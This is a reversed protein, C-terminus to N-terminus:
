NWGSSQTKAGNGTGKNWGSGQSNWGSSQNTTGSSGANVAQDGNGANDSGTGKNWGSGQSNWGGSQNSTGSSGANWSHSKNKDGSGSNWTGAGDKNKWGEGANVAQDGSGANDSGTGKNWGSGQSNWGGSQNSTGSSGANWGHSKNKDGSGSNWTGAGDKNKWGEGAGKNWDTPRDESSDNKSNWTGAGDNRSSWTGAGDNRSSWTGADDNSNNWGGSQDRRGRGRGGFGGRDSRGRGGFGGGDGSRGGFGGGEGGRGGYGGRDGGRGGFGGRGRFGGRDSRGRGRGGFGGRSGFTETQDESADGSGSNWNSKGWNSSQNGGGSWDSKKGWSSHQNRNADSSGANWSSKGGDQNEGVNPGSKWCASQGWGTASGQDSTKGSNWGRGQNQHEGGEKNETTKKNWDSSRDGSARNTDLTGWGSSQNGDMDNEGPGKRKNWGGGNDGASGAGENASSKINWGSSKDDNSAKPASWDGRSPKSNNWQDGSEGIEKGAGWRKNWGSGNDDPANAKQCGDDKKGWDSAKSKAWGGTQDNNWGSPNGTSMGDGTWSNGHGSNGGLEGQSLSRGRGFQDGRGQSGRGRGRGGFGRGEGFPKPRAWSDQQETDEKNEVWGKREVNTDAQKGWSSGGASKNWSSGENKNWSKGNDGVADESANKVNGWNVNQSGGAIKAKNWGAEDFKEADDAKGWASGEGVVVDKGKDWSKQQNWGDGGVGSSKSKEWSGAEVTDKGKGWSDPQNKGGTPSASVSKGKNWPEESTKWSDQDDSVTNKKWTAAADNSSDTPTGVKLNGKGWNDGSVKSSSGLDGDPTSKGWSSKENGAAAGWSSKENATGAGWSSKETAAAAGWSSKENAAAAGWSSKENAAAAGSSSKENSTGTGWSSKENSTGAGWSSKGNAAAAGWSSSQNPAAKTEWAANEVDKKADNAESSFPNASSSEPQLSIGSAPFSPWSSSGSSLGGSNWGSSGASTGAGDMWDRSCGEAGLLDFPKLSGSEPDESMPVTSSKGRVETLHESKVTLVKHQSDLKVTVDSHRIALVRCLYGKLPGVRIRLTQGISFMADKDGRNFEQRNERAQWPKKPSLPSKPSSPFDEFGFPASEGGKENRVDSSLKVKECMQSKACFYGGNEAENEDYLFITGRYIQRVIGQRGKSPGELVRITDCASIPKMHQDLATFKMDFPGSKLEKLQVYVVAHGEPGEKLIKYSDDKEIGIIIGFDKRGFCVLDHLDFGNVGSSGSTGEGKGGGKDSRIVRKKKREGYIQTLWELDDTENNESSKFKLLEEESPMVGSCSLSDISVKKYLYGDKLMLGDLVEFLKNTDRDRRYQILPRFEELESTSILRPAPTSNKKLSVGGGFKATMAQLDIRPILKVTARKRADNVAVIQALDGKYKGNKVRAWSGESVENRTIRSSLLHSVENKPVIAIRSSYITTLGKCAEIIDFQKDAEIYICGKIHDLAFASIIQLKTGLSKLDVYKQMLCFASNRERGVMCKVKWITPDRASPIINNRDIARKNEFDDEGYRVFNSGDKYREEMMKDFEEENMEEEKPFLPLSQAKGPEKDIKSETDFDEEAFDFDDGFDFSSDSDEGASEEFFQLVERNRRKKGGTKDDDGAKGKGAATNGAVGKGKGKQM